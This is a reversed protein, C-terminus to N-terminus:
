NALQRAIRANFRGRAALLVILTRQRDRYPDAVM